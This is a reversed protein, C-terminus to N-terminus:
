APVDMRGQLRESLVQLVLDRQLLPCSLTLCLRDGYDVSVITVNLQACAHRLRNELAFDTAVVFRSVAVVEALEAGALALSVAGGYARVLGGAGLKIGGFYRVVVAVVNGLRKHMLVNLIPKGATGSPEGDDGAGSDAGALLAWCVHNAAPHLARQAAIFAQAEARDAAPALRALFRSKKVDLEASVPSVLTFAHSM